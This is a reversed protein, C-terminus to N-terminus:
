SIIEGKCNMNPVKIGVTKLTMLIYRYNVNEVGEERLKKEIVKKPLGQEGYEIIRLKLSKPKEGAVVEKKEKKGKPKVEVQLGDFISQLEATSLMHAPRETSVKAKKVEAILEKREM